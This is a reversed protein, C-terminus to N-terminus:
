TWEMELSISNQYKNFLTENDFSYGDFIIKDGECVGLVKYDINFDNLAKITEEQKNTSILYQSNLEGFLSFLENKHQILNGKFGVARQKNTDFLCKVLATFIGGISVDICGQLTDNARLYFIAQKLQQETKVDAPTIYADPIGSISNFLINQYLNAGTLKNNDFQQGILIVTEGQEFQSKIPQEKSVGVMGITPTPYVTYDKSENYLSVNGSVVPINLLRCTDSMGKVSQVLQSAVKKNKPNGYNLCDTLGRPEFGNAVLNRYAELVTNQTGIYPEAFVQIPRSDITLGLYCNEEELWLASSNYGPKIATRNGVTYDYQSYLAKKSAVSPHSIVKLVADQISYSEDNNCSTTENINESLSYLPAENLTTVPLSAVLENNFYLNYDYGQQTEGIISYELEYDKCIDEILHEKGKDILFVMREQSESLMIEWPRMKEERTHVKDLYLNISCNGKYAMESTSSLLGAAGCDQCSCVEELSLIKLTAEILLKKIFPDAIQVSPRDKLYDEAINKSAFSAGHIGDRGTASGVLIVTKNPKAASLKVKDKHAIGVAMVNVLPSDTYHTDFFTEGAVTPVGISNGYDSIGKVVGDLLHKTRKNKLDGFKLSDLLAIPRAGLALVDRIIGGIGTAAGQYPEVASPHNHSEMKFFIIHESVQIGGANEESLVSNEKPLEKLLNKSYKYGCHESWMATYLYTETLNPERYLQKCILDYESEDLNLNLWLTKSDLM